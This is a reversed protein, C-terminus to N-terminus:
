GILIMRKLKNWHQLLLGHVFQQCQMRSLIGSIILVVLSQLPTGQRTLHEKIHEKVIMGYMNELCNKLYFLTELYIEGNMLFHISSTKFM